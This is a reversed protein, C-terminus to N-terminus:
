APNLDTGLPTTLFPANMAFFKTKIGENIFIPAYTSSPLM